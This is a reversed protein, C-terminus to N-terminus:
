DTQPVFPIQQESFHGGDDGNGLGDLGPTARFFNACRLSERGLQLGFEVHPGESMIEPSGGTDRASVGKKAPDGVKHNRFPKLPM